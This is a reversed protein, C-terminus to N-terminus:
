WLEGDRERSPVEIVRPKDIVRCTGKAQPNQAKEVIGVIWAQYGETREIDKCFSAAQERPLVILLGGSTEPATGNLLNFPSSQLQRVVGVMRAIVPLNHIVFAVDNRQAKALNCAHGFLGYGGVDIAAHANYKHMLRAATRNLRGM